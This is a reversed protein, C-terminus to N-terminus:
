QSARSCGYDPTPSVALQDGGTQEAVEPLDNTACILVRAPQGSHNLIQHHRRTRSPFALGGGPQPRPYRQRRPPAGTHRQSRVPAGRQSPSLAAARGDDGPWGTSLCLLMLYRGTTPSVETGWQCRGMRMAFREANPDSEILLGVPREDSEAVPVEGDAIEEESVTLEATARELFQSCSTSRSVVRWPRLIWPPARTSTASSLLRTDGGPRNTANPEATM